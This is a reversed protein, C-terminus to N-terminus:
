VAMSVLFFIIADTSNIVIVLFSSSELLNSCVCVKKNRLHRIIVGYVHIYLYKNIIIVIYTVEKQSVFFCKKM